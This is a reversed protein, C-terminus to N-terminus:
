APAAPTASTVSMRAKRCDAYLNEVPLIPRDERNDSPCLPEAPRPARGYRKM